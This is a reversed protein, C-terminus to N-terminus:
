AAPCPALGPRGRGRQGSGSGAGSASAPAAQTKPTRAAKERRTGTTQAPTETRGGARSTASAAAHVPSVRAGGRHGPCDVAAAPLLVFWVPETRRVPVCAPEKRVLSFSTGGIM